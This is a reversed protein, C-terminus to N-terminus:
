RSCRQCIGRPRTSLQNGALGPATMNASTVILRGPNRGLQLVLKSHFVGAARAGIVSYLRGASLPPASAGELAYTLMGTDSILINNHCGSGRLRGLVINEYADFDIGFTTILTTHFANEGFSEYLKM